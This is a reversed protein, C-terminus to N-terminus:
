GGSLGTGSGGGRPHLQLARSTESQSGHLCSDCIATGQYNVAETSQDGRRTIAISGALHYVTDVGSFCGLLSKLDCVDGYVMEVDLGELATTSKHVLARVSTGRQSLARVLNAGIHGTAGTVAITM